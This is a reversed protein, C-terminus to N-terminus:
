PEEAPDYYGPWETSSVPHALAYALEPDTTYGGHRSDSFTWTMEPDLFSRDDVQTNMVEIMDDPDPGDAEEIAFQIMDFTDFQITMGSGGIADKGFKEYLADTLPVYGDPPEGDVLV